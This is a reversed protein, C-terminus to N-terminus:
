GEKNGSLENNIEKYRNKIIRALRKVLDETYVMKGFKNEVVGLDCVSNYKKKIMQKALWVCASRLHMFSKKVGDFQVRYVPATDLSIDVDNIKKVFLNKEAMLGALKHFSISCPRGDSQTAKILNESYDISRIVSMNLKNKSNTFCLTDGFKLRGLSVVPYLNM